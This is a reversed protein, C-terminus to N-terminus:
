QRCADDDVCLKSTNAAASLHHQIVTRVIPEHKLAAEAQAITMDQSSALLIAIPVVKDRNVARAVIEAADAALQDSTLQPSNFVARLVCRRAETQDCVCACLVCDLCFGSVCVCVCKLVSKFTNTGNIVVAILAVAIRLEM